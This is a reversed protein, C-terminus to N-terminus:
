PGRIVVEILNPKGSAIGNQVAGALESIREVRVASVGMSKALALFDIAPDVLDMGIFGNAQTNRYQPRNRMYNKLINYECNNMVVFTVPLREHAATWLAQPSYLSSGDGVLSVVPARDRGLCVGVAAPMGWGLIASRMFFYQRASSTGILQRVAELTVPSEDVIAVESGIVRLVESAALFPTIAPQSRESRLRSQLEERRALQLQAAQKLSAAVDGARPALKSRLKPLLAHLSSQVDGVTALTTAHIRGPQQADATLQLLRCEPPIAPGESYPYAIASHGGLVLVADFPELQSRMGAATTHLSGSWLAHTTPFPLYGPWSSGFVPAGLMEALEITEDSADSTVIEDGAIIALAGPRVSALADSLQDLQGAVACREIRSRVGASVTTTQEMMDIPLSLFVPGRPESQCDNFARRLLMPLHDAHTVERAWKVAPRAINLLDGYLLPDMAIHRSDQQGATIVLPTGSVQAHILAGMAHGLGGATHLNVFGPRGSAKAYGDAMAVVSTEQLGLIYSCDAVGSLANLLPLETTGPNGFIYRVGESRLVELM